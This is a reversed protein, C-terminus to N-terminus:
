PGHHRFPEYAGSMEPRQVHLLGHSQEQGAAHGVYPSGMREYTYPTKQVQTRGRLARREADKHYPSKGSCCCISFFWFFCAGVAFASGLWSAVYVNHGLTAHLHFKKFVHNFTAVFSAFLAISTISAAVSFSVAIQPGM